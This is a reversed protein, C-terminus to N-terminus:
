NDKEPKATKAKKIKLNCDDSTHFVFRQHHECFHRQGRGGGPTSDPDSAGSTSRRKAKYPSPPAGHDGKTSYPRSRKFRRERGGAMASHLVCMYSVYDVPGDRAPDYTRPDAKFRRMAAHHYDLALETTALHAYEVTQRIYEDWPQHQAPSLKGSALWARLSASLQSATSPPKTAKLPSLPSLGVPASALWTADAVASGNLHINVHNAPAVSVHNAGAGSSNHSM